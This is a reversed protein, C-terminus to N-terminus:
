KKYCHFFLLQDNDPTVNKTNGPLAYEVVFGVEEIAAMFHKVGKVNVVKWSSWVARHSGSAGYFHGTNSLYKYILKALPKALVESFM